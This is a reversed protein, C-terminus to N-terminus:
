RRTTPDGTGIPADPRSAWETWSGDYLAQPPHGIKHFALTLIAASVGSGCSTIVPRAPDIAHRELADRIAGEDKLRGNEMIESFPLSVSGPMHGNPLGARPEPAEGRFREASRADVVQVVPDALATEIAALDAVADRHLKATFGQKSRARAPGEEIPGGAERWAPLGGELIRVDRAGFVTFMWWVRPASYLGAGDYVVIRTDDGIGMAGVAEAFGAEDPLMHPLPNAHDKVTDIDFRVAGPIHGALFEAEPDRKMTALYYSGDVVVLDPADLNERLWDVSVFPERVDRAATSRTM